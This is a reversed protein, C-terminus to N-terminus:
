KLLDALAYYEKGAVSVEVIVGEDLMNRCQTEVDSKLGKRLYSIQKSLGIGHALLFREILHRSLDESTPSSTDVWSPLVREALDYVKQFGRRELVMLEGEMFLQELAIKAPKWDWWGSGKTAVAREFDKAQLPGEATIRDLVFKAVKTDRTHWHKDTSRLAQKRPLSYRYDQMPLYAAAHSWYEFVKKEAMLTNLWEPKYSPSRSWIVHHHAREVVSITDIQVYSLRTIANLASAKDSGFDRPRHIGQSLLILKRAQKLSLSFRTV